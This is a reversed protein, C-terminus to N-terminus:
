IRALLKLFHLGSLLSIGGLLNTKWFRYALMLDTYEPNAFKFLFPMSGCMLFLVFSVVLGISLLKEKM